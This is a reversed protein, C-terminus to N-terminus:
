IIILVGNKRNFSCFFGVENEYDVDETDDTQPVKLFTLIDQAALNIIHALCRVHSRDVSIENLFDFLTGNNGANDLTIGLIKKFPIGFRSLCDTLIESHNKGDHKGHVYSFDLLKSHYNWENDLWHGRIALFPLSNKSTWGDMTISIKGPISEITSKMEEFKKEFDAMIDARVTKDSITKATPNLSDIIEKFAKQQTESFPQDCVV